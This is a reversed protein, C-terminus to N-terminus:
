SSTEENTQETPEAFQAPARRTVTQSQPKSKTTTPETSQKRGRLLKTVAGGTETLRGGLIQNLALLQKKLAKETMDPDVTNAAELMRKGAKAFFDPNVFNYNRPIEFGKAGYVTGVKIEVGKWYEAHDAPRANKWFGSSIEALLVEQFVTKQVTTAVTLVKGM